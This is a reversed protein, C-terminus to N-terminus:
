LREALRGLLDSVAHRHRLAFAHDGARLAHADAIGARARLAPAAGRRLGRRPGPLLGAHHLEQLVFLSSFGVGALPDARAGAAPQADHGIRHVQDQSKTSSNAFDAEFTTGMRRLTRELADSNWGWRLLAFVALPGAAMRLLGVALATITWHDPALLGYYAIVSYLSLLGSMALSFIRVLSRNPNDASTMM